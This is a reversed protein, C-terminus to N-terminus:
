ETLHTSIFEFRYKQKADPYKEKDVLGAFMNYPRTLYTYPDLISSYIVVKENRETHYGIGLVKYIDGKFHKYTGPIINRKIEESNEYLSEGCIPCFKYKEFYSTKNIWDKELSSKEYNAQTGIIENCNTCSIDRYMAGNRVLFDSCTPNTFKIM